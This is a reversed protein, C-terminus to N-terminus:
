QALLQRAQDIASVADEAYGDAGIEEAWASTVPAGGVLIKLGPRLGAENLATIISKMSPMTTSLLASLGLLEPREAQVAQVFREPPVDYGLDVVRFGAGEMMIGVLRKGIDHMDGKVTGLVITGARQLEGGILAPRLLEIGAHMARAAVIIEPVFLEGAKFDQGVREMGSMLGQNLIAPATLGEGLAQRVLMEVAKANGQYLQEALNVLRHDM